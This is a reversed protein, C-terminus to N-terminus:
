KVAIREEVTNGGDVSQQWLERAIEDERIRIQNLKGNRALLVINSIILILAVSLTAYYDYPFIIALVWAVILSLGVTLYTIYNNVKYIKRGTNLLSQYKDYLPQGKFEETQAMRLRDFCVNLPILVGLLACFIVTGFVAIAYGKMFDQEYKTWLLVLCVIGVAILSITTSLILALQLKELKKVKDRIEKSVYLEKNFYM